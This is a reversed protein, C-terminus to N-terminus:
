DHAYYQAYYMVTKLMTRFYLQYFISFLLTPYGPTYAGIAHNCNFGGLSETM